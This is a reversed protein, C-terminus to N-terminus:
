RVFWCVCNGLQAYVLLSRLYGSIETFLVRIRNFRGSVVPFMGVLLTGPTWTLTCPSYLVTCWVSYLEPSLCDSLVGTVYRSGALGM